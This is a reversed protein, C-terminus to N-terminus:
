EAFPQKSHIQFNREIKPLIMISLLAIPVIARFGDWTLLTFPAGYALLCTYIQRLNKRDINPTGEEEVLVSTVAAGYVWAVTGITMGLAFWSQYTPEGHHWLAILCITLMAAMGVAMVIYISKLRASKPM